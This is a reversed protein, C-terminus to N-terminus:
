ILLVALRLRLSERFGMRPCPKHNLFRLNDVTTLDPPRALHVNPESRSSNKKGGFNFWTLKEGRVTPSSLAPLVHGETCGKFFKDAQYPGAKNYGLAPAWDVFEGFRGCLFLVLM